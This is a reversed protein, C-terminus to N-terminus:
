LCFAFKDRIEDFASGQSIEYVDDGGFRRGRSYIYYVELIVVSSM